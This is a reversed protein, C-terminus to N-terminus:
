AKEGIGPMPHRSSVDPAPRAAFHELLLRHFFIYGGGARQLFGLHVAYELLRRLRLPITGTLALVMRLAGHLVLDIGGFWFLAPGFMVITFLVAVGFADRLSVETEMAFAVMPFFALVCALGAYAFVKGSDRLAFNGEEKWQDVPPVEQRWSSYMVLAFGAIGAMAGAQFRTMSEPAFLIMGGGTIACIPMLEVATKRQWSLSGALSIDHDMSGRGPKRGFIVPLSLASVAVTVFAALLPPDGLSLGFGWKETGMVLMAALVSLALYVFFAALEEAMGPEHGHEDPSRQLAKHGLTAYFLGALLGMAVAAALTALTASGIVAPAPTRGGTGDGALILVLGGLCVAGIALTVLLAGGIRSGLAYFLRQRPTLWAPQLLEVAFISGRERMGSALWRLGAEVRERSFGSDARERLVFMRDVFRGFVEERLEERTFTEDFRLVDTPADHFALTMISLMLPSGSLERLEANRDLADRVGALAPGAADLYADIQGQELPLLL